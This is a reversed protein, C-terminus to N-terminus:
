FDIKFSIDNQAAVDVCRKFRELVELMWAIAAEDTGSLMTLLRAMTRSHRLLDDLFGAIERAESGSIPDDRLMLAASLRRADRDYDDLSLPVALDAGDEAVRESFKKVFNLYEEFRAESEPHKDVYDISARYCDYLILDQPDHRLAELVEGLVLVFNMFGPVNTLRQGDLEAAQPDDGFFTIDLGM